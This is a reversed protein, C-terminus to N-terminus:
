YAILTRLHKDKGWAELHPVTQNHKLDRDEQCGEKGGSALKEMDEWCPRDHLGFLNSKVIWCRQLRFLIYSAKALSTRWSEYTNIDARSPLLSKNKLKRTRRLVCTGIHFHPYPLVYPLGHGHVFMSKAFAHMLSLRNVTKSSLLLIDLSKTDNTNEGWLAYLIRALIPYLYVKMWPLSSLCAKQMCVLLVDPLHM